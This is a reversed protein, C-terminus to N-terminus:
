KVPRPDPVDVCLEGVTGDGLDRGAFRMWRRSGDKCIYEKEYPGIKGTKALKELQAESEGVFHPPTLKRWTLARSEVDKETYGTMKLFAENAHVITGTGDFFIMGFGETESMRQLRQESKQLANQARRREFFDAAQRALVDLLRLEREGPVHVKRWHTSIVGILRGDRATVPTSQVALIGCLRYREMTDAPTQAEPASVDPIIVRDGERFAAGCSTGTALSMTEWFRAAQPHFNRWAILRMEHGDEDLVQLSACDAGMIAMSADLIHEYLEEHSGDKIFLGSVKQLQQADTLERVKAERLAEQARARELVDAALRALVDFQAVDRENPEYRQAWHTSLTGVMRGDRSILPTSQVATLGSRRYEQLSGSAIGSAPDNVDLVVMRQGHELAAGCASPTDTSVRQWYAASDPHFGRWALLQPEDTKPDLMHLSAADSRLLAAAANVIADCIPQINEQEFFLRSIAQLQQTDKLECTLKQESDRLAKEASRQEIIDAAQRALLDLFRLERESPRHGAERWHTSVMGIPKGARSILPTSQASLLGDQVHRRMSGGEDAIGPQDFDVFSRQGSKLAMGCPTNSGADVRFFFEIMGRTINRAALFVLEQTDDDLRQVTGADARTIEVAARLIEDYITQINEETILRAGLDQLIKTHRFEEAVTAEARKRETIDVLTLVVGGIQDDPTRYPLVRALFWAGNGDAIERDIPAADRLVMHLDDQLDRYGLQHRLDSLPRGVDGPILRFLRTAPPTYRMIRLDQDLFITAIATADMLNRLDSNARTLEDLNLTLEQNVVSLEENISQLEQRNIDLEETAARLEQNIAQLEQNSGALEGSRNEYQHIIDELRRRTDELELRLEAMTQERESAPNPEQILADLYSAPAIPAPERQNTASDAGDFVPSPVMPSAQAQNRIGHARLWLDNGGGVVTPRINLGAKPRYIRHQEDLPDFLDRDKSDASGLFLLGGPDLAYHLTKMVRKQADANMYILLNRCSILSMRPFPPDKVVDHTAFLMAQRLERRVRFGQPEKTFFQELREESIEKKISDPYFGSRAVHIATPDLDTGFVQVAPPDNLTRAHEMLVIGISYAEAGTACGAVWVRLHDGIGKGEFLSPVCRSLAKFAEPDRFFHTMSILLDQALAEADEAGARLLHLYGGLTEAGCLQMRYALRRLITDRRYYSFDKATRRRVISLLEEILDEDTNKLTELIPAQGEPIQQPRAHSDLRYYQVVRAAIQSVRVVQQAAGAAMAAQPMTPYAAERPDQVITLGGRQKMDKMGATGDADAGSLLIGVAHSGYTEALSRFFIDIARRRGLDRRQNALLLYGIGCTLCKGPPIVYVQNAEIRQQDRPFLVPMTTVHQLLRPLDSPTTPMLHLVVVFALGSDPPLSQIITQLPQLSGASGGIAVIPIIPPSSDAHITDSSRM